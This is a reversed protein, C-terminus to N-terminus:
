CLIRRHVDFSDGGVKDIAMLCTNKESTTESEVSVDFSNMNVVGIYQLIEKRGKWHTEVSTIFIIGIHIMSKGV